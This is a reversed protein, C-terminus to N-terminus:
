LENALEKAHEIGGAMKILLELGLLSFVNKVKDSVNFLVLTKGQEKFDQVYSMFVGLGASSIYTLNECDVLVKSESSKLAEELANDLLISSSADIEGNLKVVAYEENIEKIIDM